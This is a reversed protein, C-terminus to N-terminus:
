LYIFCLLCININFLIIFRIKLIMLFSNVKHEKTHIERQGNPLNLIKDGNVFTEVVTGDPLSVKDTGNAQVVQVSGDPFTVEVTGDSTRKEVQGSNM